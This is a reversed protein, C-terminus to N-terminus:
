SSNKLYQQVRATVMRASQDDEESLRNPHWVIDETRVVGNKKPIWQFTDGVRLDQTELSERNLVLGELWKHKIGSISPANFICYADNGVYERIEVTVYKRKNKM